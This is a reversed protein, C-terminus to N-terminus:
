PIYEEDDYNDEEQKYLSGDTQVLKYQWKPNFEDNTLKGDRYAFFPFTDLYPYYDFQYESLKFELKMKILEGKQDFLQHSKANQEWKPIYDKEYAWSKFLAVDSDLTYYIRDMINIKGSFSKGSLVDVDHWLLARARVKTQGDENILLALLKIKNNNTYIDLFDMKEKYRMCSKWLTGKKEGNPLSYNDQLYWRKMEEGEVIEFTINSKDFWSKYNNVFSETQIDSLGFTKFLEKSILKNVVKGVRMKQIKYKDFNQTFTEIDDVKKRPIYGIMENSGVYTLFAIDELTDANLILANIVNGSNLLFQMLDYSLYRNKNIRIIKTNM